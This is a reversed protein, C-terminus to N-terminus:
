DIFDLALNNEDSMDVSPPATDNRDDEDESSTGLDKIDGFLDHATLNRHKSLGSESATDADGTDFSKDGERIDDETIIERKVRIAESDARLLRKLENEIEQLEADKRKLTKRFRSKRVNKLPPTLGHPFQYRKDKNIEDPRPQVKPEDPEPPPNVDDSVLLMQCIDGAKYFTKRDITKHSEIICPLDVLKSYFEMSDVYVKAHRMDPQMDIKLREKLMDKPSSLAIRILEAAPKPLRLIFQGEPEFPKPPRVLAPQNGAPVASNKSGSM